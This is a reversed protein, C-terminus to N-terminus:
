CFDPRLGDLQCPDVPTSQRNRTAAEQEAYLEALGGRAGEETGSTATQQDRYMEALGGTGPGAETVGTVDTSGAPATVTVATDEGDGVTQWGFVGAAIAAAVLLGAVTLVSGRRFGRPGSLTTSTAQMTM